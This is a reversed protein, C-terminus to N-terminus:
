PCPAASYFEQHPRSCFGAWLIRQAKLFGKSDTTLWLVYREGTLSDDLWGANEVTIRASELSVGEEGWDYPEIDVSVTQTTGNLNLGPIKLAIEFFSKTWAKGKQQAELLLANFLKIDVEKVSNVYAETGITFDDVPTLTLGFPRNEEAVASASFFLLIIVSRLLLM